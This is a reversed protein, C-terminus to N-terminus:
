LSSIYGALADIQEPTLSGVQGKMVGKMPGGYTGNKYGEMKKVLETKSQGAIINSQGLARKEGKSGHCGACKVFLKSADVSPAAEKPTEAVALLAEKAKAAEEKVSQAISESKQTAIEVAKKAKKEVKTTDKKVESAAAPAAKAKPATASPTVVPASQEVSKQMPAAVKSVEESKKENCGTMLVLAAVALSITTKKM